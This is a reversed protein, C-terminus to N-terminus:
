RGAERLWRRKKAYRCLAYMATGGLFIGVWAPALWLRGLEAYETGLEIATFVAIILYLTTFERRVVSRWSFRGEPKVWKAPNPLIAPTRAAWERYRDGHREAIFAEEAMMIREYYLIYALTGVLVLWWQSLNILFAAFIIFNGLYVPHRVISYMGTTNLSEARMRKTGRGTTGRPVYGVTMVRVGLGVLAIAFCGFELVLDATHSAFPYRFRSVAVVALPLMLLPLFSRWRFLFRGQEPLENTLM